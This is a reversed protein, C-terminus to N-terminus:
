ILSDYRMLFSKLILVLIMLSEPAKSDEPANLLEELHIDIDNSQPAKSDEPTARIQSDNSTVEFPYTSQINNNAEERNGCRLAASSRWYGGVATQNPCSGCATMLERESFFYMEENEGMGYMGALADPSCNYIYCDYIPM